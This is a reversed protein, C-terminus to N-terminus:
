FLSGPRASEEPDPPVQVVVESNFRPKLAWTSDGDPVLLGSASLTVGPELTQLVASFAIDSDFIVVVPGSGDDAVVRFGEPTNTTDQVIAAFVRVPGADLRGDDATAAMGTSVLEPAPLGVGAELIFAIGASLTLLADDDGSELRGRIRIADGAQVNTPQVGTARIFAGTTDTLHLTSDGFTSWGNLALGELFLRTGGPLREMETINFKPFGIGIVVSVSDSPGLFVDADRITVVRLTDPISTVEVGVIYRGVPLEPLAYEGEPGSVTRQLTDESAQDILLVEVGEVPIISDGLQRSGDWDLFVQGSVVGTASVELIRDRGENDCALFLIAAVGLWACVQKGNSM